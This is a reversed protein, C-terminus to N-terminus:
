IFWHPFHAVMIYRLPKWSDKHTFIASWLEKEQAHVSEERSHIIQRDKSCFYHQLWHRLARCRSPGQLFLFVSGGYSQQLPTQKTKRRKVNWTASASSDVEEIQTKMLVGVDCLRICPGTTFTKLVTATSSLLRITNKEDSSNGPSGSSSSSVNSDKLFDHSAIHDSFRVAGQGHLEITHAAHGLEHILFRQISPTLISSSANNQEETHVIIRNRIKGHEYLFAFFPRYEDRPPFRLRHNHPRLAPCKLPTRNRNETTANAIYNMHARSGMQLIQEMADLLATNGRMATDEYRPIVHADCQSLWDTWTSMDSLRLLPYNLPIYTAHLASLWERNVYEKTPRRTRICMPREMERIVSNAYGVSQAAGYRDMIEYRQAKAAKTSGFFTDDADDLSAPLCVFDSDKIKPYLKKAHVLKKWTCTFLCQSIIYHLNNHLDAYPCGDFRDSLRDREIHPRPCPISTAGHVDKRSNGGRHLSHIGELSEGVLIWKTRRQLLNVLTAAKSSKNRQSSSSSSSSSSSMSSSLSFPLRRVDASLLHTAAEVPDVIIYLTETCSKSASAIRQQLQQVTSPADICQSARIGLKSLVHYLLTTKGSGTPGYLFAVPSSDADKTTCFSHLHQRAQYQTLFSIFSVPAHPSTRFVPPSISDNTDSESESKKSQDNHQAETSSEDSNCGFFFTLENDLSSNQSM